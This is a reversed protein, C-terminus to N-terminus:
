HQFSQIVKGFEISIAPLSVQKKPRGRPRVTPRTAGGQGSQSQKQKYGTGPPRGRRPAPGYVVPKPAGRSGKPRGRKRHLPATPVASTSPAPSQPYLRLPESSLGILPGPLAIHQSASTASSAFHENDHGLDIFPNVSRSHCCVLKFPSSTQKGEM